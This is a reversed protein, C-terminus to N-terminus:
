CTSFQKTLFVSWIVSAISYVAMGEGSLRRLDNYSMNSPILVDENQGHLLFVEFPTVMRDMGYSYLDTSTTATPTIGNELTTVRRSHSQSVDLYCDQLARKTNEWTKEKELKQIAVIDVLDLVRKTKPLGEGRFSGRSTWPSFKQSVKLKERITGSEQFWKTHM